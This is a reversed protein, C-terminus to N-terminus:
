IEGSEKSDNVANKQEVNDKETCEAVKLGTSELFLDMESELVEDSVKKNEADTLDVVKEKEKNQFYDEAKKQMERFMLYDDPKCSIDEFPNGSFNGVNGRKEKEIAMRCHRIKLKLYETELDHKMKQHHLITSMERMKLEHYSRMRMMYCEHTEKRFDIEADLKNRYRQGMEIDFKQREEIDAMDLPTRFCFESSTEGFSDENENNESYQSEEAFPNFDDAIQRQSDNLPEYDNQNAPDTYSSSGFNSSTGPVGSKRNNDSFGSQPLYNFGASTSSSGQGQGDFLLRDNNGSDHRPRKYYRGSSIYTDLKARKKLGDRINKFKRRLTTIDRYESAHKNYELALDFWLDRLKQPDDNVNKVGPRKEILRKLLMVDRGNFIPLPSKKLFTNFSDNM